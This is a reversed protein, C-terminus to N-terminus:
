AKEKEVIREALDAMVTRLSVYQDYGSDKLVQIALALKDEEPMFSFPKSYQEIFRDALAKSDVLSYGYESRIAKIMPVYEPSKSGSSKYEEICKFLMETIDLTLLENVRTTIVREFWIAPLSTM